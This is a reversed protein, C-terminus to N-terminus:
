FSNMQTNILEQWEKFVEKVKLESTMRYREMGTQAELFLRDIDAEQKVAKVIDNMYAIVAESSKVAREKRRLLEMELQKSSPLYYKCGLCEALQQQSICDSIDEPDEMRKQSMCWIGNESAVSDQYQKRYAKTRVEEMNLKKQLHMISTCMITNTVNSYYWSSTNIHIHGALQRCIDAGVDQFYMNSLAIPRADGPSVMEFEDIGAAFRAFDYKRNGVLKEEIFRKLLHDFSRLSLSKVSSYANYDFLFQRENNGTLKQYKRINGVIENSPIRYKFLEYDRDVEYYVTLTAKKLRTRRIKLYTGSDDEVLCDFPTVLMETPRLPLIFTIRAWFYVPFWECFEEETLNASAYIANIENGIALYNMMPALRRQSKEKTLRIPVVSLMRAAENEPTGIFDLFDEIAAKEDLTIRNEGQLRGELFERLMKLKSAIGDFIYVGFLYATYCKMMEKIDAVPIGTEKGFGHSYKTRSITFILSHKVIGSFGVWIEDEFDGSIKGESKFERFITRYGRRNMQNFRAGTLFVYDDEEVQRLRNNM